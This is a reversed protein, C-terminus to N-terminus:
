SIIPLNPFATRIHSVITDHVATESQSAVVVRDFTGELLLLSFLETKHRLYALGQEPPRARSMPIRPDIDLYIALSPRPAFWFLWPVLRLYRERVSTLYSINIATDIWTRDSLVVASGRAWQWLMWVRWVVIDLVFSAQRAWLAGRSASTQAKPTTPKNSGTQTGGFYAAVRNVVSFQVAHYVAVEISAEQFARRLLALQTSKGSGDIGSLTIHYM